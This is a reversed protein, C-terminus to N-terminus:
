ASYKVNYKPTLELLKSNNFSQGKQVTTTKDIEVAQWQEETGAFNIEKLASCSHFPHGCIFQNAVNFLAGKIKELSAPLYIKELAICYGFVGEDISTVGEGVVAYKLSVCSHFAAYGIAPTVDYQEKGDEDKVPNGDEDLKPIKIDHMGDPLVVSELATEFFALAGITVLSEPFNIKKLNICSEFAEVNIQELGAPLTVETLFECTFFAMGDIVKVTDPVTIKRLGSYGFCGWAIKDLQTGEAFIVEKLSNINSFAANGIKTVTAPITVKTIGTGAFGQQAIERVPAYSDTGEEGYYAPIELEGSLNPMFGSAGAVYYKEGTNEDTKLEFGVSASCGALMPISFALAIVAIIAALIRKKM